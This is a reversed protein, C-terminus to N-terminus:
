RGRRRNRPRQRGTQHRSQRGGRPRPCSSPGQVGDRPGASRVQSHRQSRTFPRQPSTSYRAIGSTRNPRHDSNITSATVWSPQPLGAGAFLPQCGRNHHTRANDAPCWLDEWTQSSRSALKEQVPEPLTTHLEDMSSGFRISPYTLNSYFGERQWAECTKLFIEQCLIRMPPWEMPTSPHPRYSAITIDPIIPPNLM